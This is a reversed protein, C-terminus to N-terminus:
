HSMLVPITMNHLQYRSAGGFLLEHLRWHGYCGMVLLDARHSIAQQTLAHGVDADTQITETTIHKIGHRRLTECIDTAANGAGSREGSSEVHAVKVDEATRLLPLADFVARAAERAGNWAVLIREGISSGSGENPVVITPRGSGMILAEVVDLDLSGPWGHDTQSAIVLDARRAHELAVGSVTSNGADLERWESTVKQGRGAAALFTSRLDPNDKRYARCHEDIVM